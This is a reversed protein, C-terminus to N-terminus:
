FCLFLLSVMFLFYFFKGFTYQWFNLTIIFGETNSKAKLSSAVGELIGDIQQPIAELEQRLCFVENIKLYCDECSEDNYRRCKEEGVVVGLLRKFLGVQKLYQPRSRGQSFKALTSNGCIFCGGNPSM